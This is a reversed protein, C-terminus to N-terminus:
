NEKKEKKTKENETAKPRVRSDVSIDVYTTSSIGSKPINVGIPQYVPPFSIVSVTRFSRCVQMFSACGLIMSKRYILGDIRSSIGVVVYRCVLVVLKPTLVERKTVSYSVPSFSYPFACKSTMSISDVTHAEPIEYSASPEIVHM